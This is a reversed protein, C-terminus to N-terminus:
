FGDVCFGLGCYLSPRQSFGVVALFIKILDFEYLSALVPFRRRAEFNPHIACIFWKNLFSYTSCLTIDNFQFLRSLCSGLSLLGRPSLRWNLMRIPSRTLGSICHIRCLGRSYLAFATLRTYYDQAKSIIIFVGLLSTGELM